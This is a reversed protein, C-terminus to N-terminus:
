PAYGQRRNFIMASDNEYVLKYEPSNKLEEILTKGNSQCTEIEGCQVIAQKQIYLYEFPLAMQQAHQQVCTLHDFVCSQLEQYRSLAPIFQAGWLWEKGQLTTKSDRGTLAPFWEQIPDNMPDQAGTLVIFSSGAPTNGAIWQMATQGPVSLHDAGMRLAFAYSGLLSYVMVCGLFFLALGNQLPPQVPLGPHPNLAALGPLLLDTMAVAALVALPMTIIWPASRPEMIFPLIFWTLFFYNRKALSMFLGILGIVTILDILPEETFSFTLLPVWALPSNNGTQAASLFPTIGHQSLVPLWWLATAAGVGLAVIVGDFFTAKSRAKFFWILAVIGITHLAAEPHSLVALTGALITFIVFLRKRETFLYFACIATLMLFLQGFSRTLGGGMLFWSFTRPILAFFLAAFAAQQRSNLLAKALFYFAPIVSISIIAPLWLLIQTVPFHFLSALLAALYLPFPPYAFPINEALNYSTFMPLAYGNKQLDGVMTYFMGGDNIPFGALAAPALRLWAGLVLALTLILNAIQNKTLRKIPNMM